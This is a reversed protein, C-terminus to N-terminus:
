PPGPIVHPHIPSWGGPPLGHHLLMATSSATAWEELAPSDACGLVSCITGGKEVASLCPCLEISTWGVAAQLCASSLNRQLSSFSRESVLPRDLLLSKLSIMCHNTDTNLYPLLQLSCGRLLSQPVGWSSSPAQCLLGTAKVQLVSPRSGGPPSAASFHLLFCIGAQMECM